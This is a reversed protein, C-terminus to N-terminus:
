GPLESAVPYTRERSILKMLWKNFFLGDAVDASTIILNIQGAPSRLRLVPYVELLRHDGAALATM